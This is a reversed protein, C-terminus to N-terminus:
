LEGLALLGTLCEALQENGGLHEIKALIETKLTALKERCFAFTGTEEMLDVCFLKMEETKPRQRLAHFLRCDGNNSEKATQISHTICFSFKGEQLDECFSKNKHYGASKLNLYDDLIQFLLSFSNVLGVLEREKEPTLHMQNASAAPPSCVAQEYRRMALMLKLSLRFLGGTKQLVMGEYQELTPVTFTDRWYIDLGQGIHLEQLETTYAKVLEAQAAAKIDATAAREAPPAEVLQMVKALATFYMHNACNLTLATGFIEHAVPQGRRLTAGDEIDDVLLSANHLMGVIENITAESAPSLRIWSNFAAVFKARINKGQQRCIHRYPAMLHSEKTPIELSENLQRDSM